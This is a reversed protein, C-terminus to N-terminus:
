PHYRSERLIKQYDDEHMIDSLSLGPNRSAYERVIQWGIWVAARGPSEDPFYYTSPAEETLKSIVLQDSSFLLDHEILYTWMQKENNKCFKMQDPSFGIKLSDEMGPLLADTFYMLQGGHIMKSLVNNASDDYPFRSSGWVHVADSPIKGRHMNYQLYQPMGMMDYFRCDRGLYRDLGIGIYNSVTFIKLNFGGIYAVVTPATSDPFHHLYRRFADTLEKEIAGTERFVEQAYEFVDINQPDNVFMSLYSGYYRQSAPGINIIHVNFVDFFDGYRRYFDDIAGDITDFDLTFVERDFRHIELDLPIDSVDVDFSDNKCGTFTVLLMVNIIFLYILRNM